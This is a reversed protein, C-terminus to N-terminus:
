MLVKKNKNKGFITLSIRQGKKIKPVEHNTHVDFWGEEIPQNEVLLKTKCDSEQLECVYSFKRNERDDHHTSFYCGENWKHIHYCDYEFDTDNVFNQLYLEFDLDFPVEHKGFNYFQYNRGYKKSLVEIKTFEKDKINELFWDIYEQKM